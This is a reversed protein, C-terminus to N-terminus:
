KPDKVTSGINIQFNELVGNYPSKLEVRVKREAAVWESSSTAQIEYVERFEYLLLPSDKSVRSSPTALWKIITAPLHQAPITVKSHSEM